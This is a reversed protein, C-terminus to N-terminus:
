KFIDQNVNQYRKYTKPKLKSEKFIYIFVLADFETEYRIYRTTTFSVTKLVTIIKSLEISIIICVEFRKSNVM